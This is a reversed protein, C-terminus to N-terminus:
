IYSRMICAEGGTVAERKPRLIKRIVRSEFVWQM